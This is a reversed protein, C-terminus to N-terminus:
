IYEIIANVLKSIEKNDRCKELLECLNKDDFASIEDALLIVNDLLERTIMM